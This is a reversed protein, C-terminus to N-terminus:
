FVERFAMKGDWKVLGLLNTYGIGSTMVAYFPNLKDAKGTDYTVFFPVGTGVADAFTEVNAKIADTFFPFYVDYSKFRIGRDSYLQGTISFTQATTDHMTEVLGRAPGNDLSTSAGLWLRGIEIYGDPNTPDEVLFRWYLHAAFGVFAYYVTKGRTMTIDVTPGVWVDVDNGQIKVTAADSINHGAIFACDPTFAVASGGVVDESADGITRWKNSLHILQANKIGLNPAESSPVLTYADFRNEYSLLM